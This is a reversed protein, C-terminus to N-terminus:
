CTAGPIALESGPLPVSEELLNAEELQRLALWVVDEDLGPDIQERLLSSLQAVTNQGDCHTWVFASTRSLCNVKHTRQDYVVVENEFETVVLNQERRRPRATSEQEGGDLRHVGKM